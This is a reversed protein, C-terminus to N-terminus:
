GRTRERTLEREFEALAAFIGFVLRGSATGTDIKIRFNPHDRTYVWANQVDSHDLLEAIMAYIQKTNHGSVGGGGQEEAVYKCALEVAYVLVIM